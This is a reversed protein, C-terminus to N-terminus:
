SGRGTRGATAPDAQVCVASISPTSRRPAAQRSAACRRCCATSAPARTSTSTPAPEAHLGDLRPMEIDSVILDPHLRAALDIGAM